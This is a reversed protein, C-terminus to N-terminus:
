IQVPLGARVVMRVRQLANLDKQLDGKVVILDSDFGDQLGERHGLGCVRAAASTAAVL